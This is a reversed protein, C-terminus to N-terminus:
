YKRHVTSVKQEEAPVTPTNEATVETKKAKEVAESLIKPLANTQKGRQDNFVKLATLILGITGLLIGSYKIVSNINLVRTLLVSLM